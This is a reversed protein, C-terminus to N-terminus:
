QYRELSLVLDKLEDIEQSHWNKREIARIVKKSVSLLSEKLDNLSCVATLAVSKTKDANLCFLLELNSNEVRKAFVIPSGDMFDFEYTTNPKSAMLGKLSKIWWPLIIVVFDSWGEDPFFRHYDIIFYVNGVINQTSELSDLEVEISINQTM